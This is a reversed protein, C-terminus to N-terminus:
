FYNRNPYTKIDDSGRLHSIAIPRKRRQEDKMTSQEDIM